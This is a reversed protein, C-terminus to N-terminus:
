PETRSYAERIAGTEPATLLANKLSTDDLKSATAEILTMAEAHHERAREPDGHGELLLGLGHHIQWLLPPNGVEKASELADQMSEIAGETNGMKELVEARLKLSKTLHKKAGAIRSITVAEHALELAEEYDSEALSVGGLGCCIKIEYRWQACQQYRSAGKAEQFYKRANEYDKKYSYDTGLNVLVPPLDFYENATELAKKNYQLALEVDSLDHYIWGLANLARPVFYLVGNDQSLQICNQLTSIADNYEGKGAKVMGLLFITFLNWFNNGSEETIALARNLKLEAQDFEGRWNHYVGVWFPNVAEVYKDGIEKSVSLSEEFLTPSEHFTDISGMRPGILDCLSRSEIFKNGTKRALELAKTYHPVAEDYDWSMQRASGAFYHAEAMMSEDSLAIANQLFLSFDDFAKVAEGQGMWARGRLGYIRGLNEETALATDKQTAELAKSLYEIAQANAFIDVAEEGLRLLYVFAKEPIGGEVYHHAIDAMYGDSIKDALAQELCDATKVHYIRRLAGPLDSYIVERIKHHTFEFMSDEHRILRHRQEIEFLTQVVEVIDSALTRSLTEPSFSRGCVAALNLLNRDERGLRGIRRVIVDHVKSPIRIEEMPATLTWRGGEESLFGEDVLLNLMELTFLPNGETEEYLKEVFKEDISSHFVSRVLDPFDGRKLPSLVMRTMLGERSMSFMTEELPHHREEVTQILEEPRYTGVILLHSDRCKRSLYHLLALSMHDAWHLDDLFLVAPEQASLQLLVRTAAEFTRDREIEPTSLYEQPEPRRAIQARVSEPGRLWGTIGMQRTMTSKTREDSLTSVYNNFAETFPFYPIAAESLCWGSLTKAGRKEAHNLFENVLRTKGVGAEGSILVTTGKGATASDLYEILQNIEHERGVLTTETPLGTKL